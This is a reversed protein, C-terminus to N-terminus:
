EAYMKASERLRPAWMLRNVEFVVLLIVLVGFISAENFGTASTYQIFEGFGGSVHSIIEAGIIAEWGIAVGVISGSLVAPFVLPALYATIRRLGRAGFITAAANLDAHASKIATLIAFLIPWVISTAAFLIIMKDTYGFFAIFFPILAFSPINQLLDFFPFLYDSFRSWGVFLGIFLALALAIGYAIFLRYATFLVAIIIEIWPVSTAYGFSVIALTALVLSLILIWERRRRAVHM